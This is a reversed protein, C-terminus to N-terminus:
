LFNYKVGFTFVKGSYKTARPMWEHTQYEEYLNETLNYAKFNIQLDETIKYYASADLRGAAAVSRDAFGNATGSTRLDYATRYNYALRVGFSDQEYYAIANYSKDSIGPIRNADNDDQETQSYNIVGGFGNWPYPLFDLNQQISIEMGKISITDAINVIGSMNVTDGAVLLDPNSLNDNGDTICKGDNQVSLQGLDVGTGTLATSDCLDQTDFLNSIEKKFLALTIASGTRNYWELSLDYSDAEFPKINSGPLQVTAGVGQIYSFKSTPSASRLDPRAINKNYAFRLIVSEDDDLNTSLNVSPLFHNYDNKFVALPLNNIDSGGTDPAKAETESQIYRGGINGNLLMPGFLEFEFNAMGYLANTKLGSSYIFGDSQRGGRQIYGTPTYVAEEGNSAPAIDAIKISNKLDANMSDFDFSRWGEAASVFGDTLGGFFAQESVYAPDTIRDSTMIGTPNVGISSGKAYTSDQFVDAFRYGFKVNKLFGEDFQRTFDLKFSDNSHAVQEYNGTILLYLGDAAKNTTATNAVQNKPSWVANAFDMAQDAGTMNFYFDEINGEGTYVSGKISAPKDTRNSLLVETRRNTAESLTLNADVTWMDHTWEADFMYATADQLQEDKRNDFYYRPREFDVGSLVYTEQGANNKEGTPRLPYTDLTPTVKVSTQDLRMELQELRAEDLNRETIISTFGLKLNESPKYEIGGSFSFRDGSNVESQQRYEGPFLITADEHVNNDSLWENYLADQEGETGDPAFNEARLSDYANIRIVDQRFTQQSFSLTGSVALVDDILHTSGSISVEPDISDALEEYRGGIQMRLSQKRQLPSKVKQNVTGAIGGEVMDATLSKQVTIGNFVAPNYAGFPNAAGYPSADRTPTAISVGNATTLVFGSPLGRLNISSERRSGERNLQVGPVAQLAEGMDLAPLTGIDDASIGDVITPALKKENIASQLNGKISSVISIVEVEEDNVTEQAFTPSCALAVLAGLTTKQFPHKNRTSM